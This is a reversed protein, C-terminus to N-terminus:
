RQSISPGTQGSFILDDIDPTPVPPDQRVQHDITM